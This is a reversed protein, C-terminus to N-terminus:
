VEVEPAEEHEINTYQRSRKVNGIATRLQPQLTKARRVLQHRHMYLVVALLVCMVFVLVGLVASAASTRAAPAPTCEVHKLKMVPLNENSAPRGEFCRYMESGVLRVRTTQMWEFFDKIDCDCYFPNMALKVAFNPNKAALQDLRATANGDLRRISNYELDLFSIKNLCQLDMDVGTFRNSGLYLHELSPLHCFTRPDRLNWIENQELHLKKLKTLMSGQFIIELSVMYWNSDVEETFANTLHLNELNMFNSFVRPHHKSDVIYLSNHNLILTKVNSVRHYTKGKIEKIGNNSMDITELDEFDAVTGFINTPLVELFNGTFILVETEDPLARLMTANTFGTNTCNVVYREENQYMMMGCRCRGLFPTPCGSADKTYIVDDFEDDYDDEDYYDYDDDDDDDDDDDEDSATTTSPTSTSFSDLDKAYSRLLNDQGDKLQSSLGPRLVALLLLLLLLSRSPGM